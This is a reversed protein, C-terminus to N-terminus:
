EDDDSVSQSLNFLVEQGETDQNGQQLEVPLDMSVIKRLPIPLLFSKFEYFQDILFYGVKKDPNYKKFIANYFTKKETHVNVESGPELGLLVNDYNEPSEM